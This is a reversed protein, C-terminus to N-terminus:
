DGWYNPDSPNNFDSWPTDRKKRTDRTGFSIIWGGSKAGKTITLFLETFLLLLVVTIPLSIMFITFGM